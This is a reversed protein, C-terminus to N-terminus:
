EKYLGIISSENLKKCIIIYLPGMILGLGGMLELGIYLTMITILPHLGIQSGVIKPEVIQRVVVIIGWLAMLGIGRVPDGMVICVIGWPVLIGGSGVIPFVDVIAIIFAVFWADDIGLVFFGIALEIFCIVSILIYSFIMRFLSFLVNNNFVEVFKKGKDSLQKNIFGSIRDYDFLMYFSAICGIIFSVLFGPIGAAINIATNSLVKILNMALGSLEGSIASIDIEIKLFESLNELNVELLEIYSAIQTATTNASIINILYSIGDVISHILFWIVVIAILAFLLLCILTSVVKPVKIKKEIKVMLPRLIRTVVYAIIFPSFVGFFNNTFFVLAMAGLVFLLLKYIEPCNKFIDRIKQM